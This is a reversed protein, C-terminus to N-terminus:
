KIDYWDIMGRMLGVADDRNIPWLPFGFVASKSCPTEYRYGCIGGDIRGDGGYASVAMYLGEALGGSVFYNVGTIANQYYAYPDEGSCWVHGKPIYYALQSSDPRISPLDDVLSIGGIFEENSEGLRYSRIWNAVWQANVDFYQSAVSNPSLYHLYPIDDLADTHAFHDVGMLMVKGGMDMYTAFFDM